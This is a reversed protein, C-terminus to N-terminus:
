SDTVEFFSMWGLEAFESQHAHFMYLGPEHDSFDIEIIGRQGQCQMVTDVMRLTPTLTTGHDYYDYFNGHLHLSNVPDFETANILYLRVPRARAIRIPTHGYAFAISNIAYFENEDDFNTDFGNMVMVFEQWRAHEPTGHRRGLAVARHEPHREPAPDIILAGYLGKHIHRKLPIAHCHYLHCGFPRADVEYTFNEGPAVLGAGTIGDMRAPHISHLHITHPHTGGNQFNIRLREGEVCRLTPGPVRGNYTWAPFFVGPAIEIEKDIATITWERVPRGDPGTSTEGYDFETLLQEPTFGNAAHDVNGVVMNGGMGAADHSDGHTTGEAAARGALLAAAGPFGAFAALAQRRTAPL